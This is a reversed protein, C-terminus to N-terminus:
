KPLKKLNEKLSKLEQDAESYFPDLTGTNKPDTKTKTSAGMSGPQDGLEKIRENAANLDNTLKTVNAEADNKATTLTTISDNATQLDNKAKTLSDNATKADATLQAIHDNLKQVADDNLEVEKSTENAGFSVNLAAALALQTALLTIKKMTHNQSSFNPLIQTGARRPKIGDAMDNCLQVAFDLDGQYDVLGNQLADAAYFMAGKFIDANNSLKGARHSKVTDIFFNTFRELDAKMVSEDGKLVAEYAENKKTSQPAYITRVDIGMQEYYKKFNAITIYTGISGVESTAGDIVISDAASSIWYSASASMGQIFSVVPKPANFIKSSLLETANAQGGGSDHVLVVGKINTNNFCRQLLNLKTLTGAEGCFQDYKTIPGRLEMIAISNAPAKEPASAIGLDSIMYPNANAVHSFVNLTSAVDKKPAPKTNIDAKLMNMVLHYHSEAYQKDILWIDSFIDGIHAYRKM